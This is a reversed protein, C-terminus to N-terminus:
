GGVQKAMAWATLSGSGSIRVYRLRVESFSVQTLSLIWDSAAGSAVVAPNVDLETWPADEHIRGDAFFNGTPTGTWMIQIGVNDLRDCPIPASTLNGSMDGADLIRFAKTVNKAM